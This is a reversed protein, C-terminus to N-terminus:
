TCDVLVILKLEERLFNLLNREVSIGGAIKDTIHILRKIRSM